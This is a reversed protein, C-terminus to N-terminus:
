SVGLIDVVFVLTDTGKIGASPQGTAGYGKDPPIVVLVQSGVTQGVLGEDWGAIVAGVGIAFQASSGRQWSSDFVKGSNWIAGTYKVDVTQGAEVVPGDGVILPQVILNAPADAKPMFIKPAGNKALEVRPLGDPPTVATGTARDLPHTVDNVDVVFVVTDSKKLGVSSGNATLGDKPAVAVLVRSGAPTGVLAHLLAPTTGKELKLSVPQTGYSTEIEAGTRGNLIVYDISVQDGKAATAGTGTTRVESISSKVSVPWDASVAPKTGPSGSVEVAGLRSSAASATAGTVVPALTVAALVASLVVLLRRV